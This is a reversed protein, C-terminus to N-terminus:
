LYKVSIVYYHYFFLFVFDIWATLHFLCPVRQIISFLCCGYKRKNNWQFVHIVFQIVLILNPQTDERKAWGPNVFIGVFLIRCCILMEQVTLSIQNPQKRNENKSFITFSSSFTHPQLESFMKLSFSVVLFHFCYIKTKLTKNQKWNLVSIENRIFHFQPSM